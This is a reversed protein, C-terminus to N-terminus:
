LENEHESISYRIAKGLIEIEKGIDNISYSQSYSKDKGEKWSSHTQIVLFGNKLLFVTRIITECGPNRLCYIGDDDITDTQSFIVWDNKLLKPAMTNDNVRLGFYYSNNQLLEPAINTEFWVLSPHPNRVSADSPLYKLVNVRAVENSLDDDSNKGSTLELGALESPDVKLVNAIKEIKEYKPYIRGNCWDCLTTYPMDLMKALQTRTIKKEAMISKLNKVFHQEISYDHRRAKEAFTEQKKM